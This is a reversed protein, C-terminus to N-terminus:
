QYQRSMCPKIRLGIQFSGRRSMWRLEDRVIFTCNVPWPQVPQAIWCHVLQTKLTRSLLKFDTWAHSMQRLYCSVTGVWFCALFHANGDILRLMLLDVCTFDFVIYTPFWRLSLRNKFPFTDRIYSLLRLVLLYFKIGRLTDRASAVTLFQVRLFVRLILQCSTGLSSMPFVRWSIAWVDEKFM